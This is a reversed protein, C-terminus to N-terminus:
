LNKNVNIVWTSQTNDGPVSSSHLIEVCVSDLLLTACYSRTHLVLQGRQSDGIHQTHAAAAGPGGEQGAGPVQADGYVVGQPGVQQGPDWLSQVEDTLEYTVKTSQNGQVFTFAPRCHHRASDTHPPPEESAAM